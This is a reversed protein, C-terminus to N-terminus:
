QNQWSNKWVLHFIFRHCIKYSFNLQLLNNQTSEQFNNKFFREFNEYGSIMTKDTQFLDNNNITYRSCGVGSAIQDIRAYL